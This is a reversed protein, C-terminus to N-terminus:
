HSFCVVKAEKNCRNLELSPLTHCIEVQRFLRTFTIQVTGGRMGPFLRGSHQVIEFIYM